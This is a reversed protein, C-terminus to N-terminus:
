FFVAWRCMYIVIAYMCYLNHLRTNHPLSATGLDHASCRCMWGASLVPLTRRPISCFFPMVRYYCLRLPISTTYFPVSESEVLPWYMECPLWPLMAADAVERREQLWLFLNPLQVCLHFMILLLQGCSGTLFLFHKPCKSQRAQMTYLTM